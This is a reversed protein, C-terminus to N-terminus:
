YVTRIFCLMRVTQISMIQLAVGVNMKNYYVHEFGLLVLRFVVGVVVRPEKQLFLPGLGLGLVRLLISVHM